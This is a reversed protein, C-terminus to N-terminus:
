LALCINKELIWPPGRGVRGGVQRQWQRKPNFSPNPNSPYHTKTSKITVEEKHYTSCLIFKPASKEGKDECREFGIGLKYTSKTASEEVRSLNDKILKESVVTRELRSTLYDVEQKLETNEKTPHFLKGKLSGCTDCPPSLVSYPSSHAIQHKLYKIDIACAELDSRLLPCSACVGLLLSCAKLENLELKARKLQSMVQTHMLWLDVYNIMIM